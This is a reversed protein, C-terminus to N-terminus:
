PPAGVNEVDVSLVTTSTARRPSTYWCSSGKVTTRTRSIWTGCSGSKWLTKPLPSGDKPPLTTVCGYPEARANYYRPDRRIMALRRHADLEDTCWDVVGGGTGDRLWAVLCWLEDDPVCTCPYNRPTYASM